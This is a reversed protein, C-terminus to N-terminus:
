QITETEETEEILQALVAYEDPWEDEENWDSEEVLADQEAEYDTWLEDLTAIWTPQTSVEPQGSPLWQVTAIVACLVAVSLVGAVRRGRRQSLKQDLRAEFGPEARPGSADFLTRLEDRPESM